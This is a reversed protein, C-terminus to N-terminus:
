RNIGMLLFLVLVAVVLIVPGFYTLMQAKTLNYKPQNM